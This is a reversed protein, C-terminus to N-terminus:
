SPPPKIQTAYTVFVSHMLHGLVKTQGGLLDRLDQGLIRLSGFIVHLHQLIMLQREDKLIQGLVILRCANLFDKGLAGLRIGPLLRLRCLRLFLLLLRGLRGSGGGIAALRLGRASLLLLLVTRGLLGLLRGAPDGLGLHHVGALGGVDIQGLIVFLQLIHRIGAAPAAPILLLGLALLFEAVPAAPVVIEGAALALLLLCITQAAQPQLDDLLGGNGHLNGVLDAHALQCAPHLFGACLHDLAQHFVAHHGRQALHNVEVGGGDNGLFHAALHLLFHHDGDLFLQNVVVLILSLIQHGPCRHHHDHAMDVVALGAQQVIDAVGMHGAALGAADGLVDAGILHLDVSLGNGEQVGRAVLREGGHAGSAGHHRINGNQHHSGLVTDHGLRHLRDVVGLRRPNGNNHSDILHILGLGIGLADLLLQRLVAQYALIPAAVGNHAGDRGLGAHAHVIQQFHQGQSGLHALQLCVGVAGSLACYDLGPQVLAAARHGGQQHLVSRQMLAINDDCSGGHAAHPSHDAVLPLLNCRGAGGHRHLNRAKGLRGGGAGGEVGHGVFLQGALQHLLALSLLAGFGVSRHGLNRQLIQEVLNLCALHLVQVEDDLGIHLAAHLSHLSRQLLQAVLFHPHPYDVAAHTGDILGIHHQGRGRLRNDHAKINAGIGSGPVACRPGIYIHPHVTHNVIGDVLNLGGHLTHQGGFVSLSQQAMGLHALGVLNGAHAGHRAAIHLIALELALVALHTQHAVADYNM